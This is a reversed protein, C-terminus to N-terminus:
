PLFVPKCTMAPSPTPEIRKSLDPRETTLYRDEADKIGHLRHM